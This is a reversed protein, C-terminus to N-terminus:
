SPSVVNVMAVADYGLVLLEKTTEAFKDPLYTVKCGVYSIAKAKNLEAMNNTLFHLRATVRLCKQRFARTPPPRRSPRGPSFPFIYPCISPNLFLPSSPPSYSM